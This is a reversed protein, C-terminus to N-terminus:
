SHLPLQVQDIVNQKKCTEVANRTALRVKVKHIGIYASQM